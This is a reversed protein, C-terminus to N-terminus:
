EDYNVEDDYYRDDGEDLINRDAAFIFSVGIMFLAGLGMGAIFMM